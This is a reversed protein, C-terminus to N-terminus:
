NWWWILPPTWNLNCPKLYCIVECLLIGALQWGNVLRCSDDVHNNHSSNVCQYMEKPCCSMCKCEFRLIASKVGLLRELSWNLTKLVHVKNSVWMTTRPPRSCYGSCVTPGRAAAWRWCRRIWTRRRRWPCCCSFPCAFMCCMVKWEGNNWLSPM